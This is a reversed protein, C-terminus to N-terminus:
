HWFDFPPETLSETVWHTVLDGISSNQVALFLINAINAISMEIINAASKHLCDGSQRDSVQSRDQMVNCFM